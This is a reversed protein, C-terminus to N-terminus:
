RREPGILDMQATRRAFRWRGDAKVIEDKYIGVLPISIANGDTQGPIMVYTRARCREGDGQISPIGLVHRMTPGASRNEFLSGVYARIANRGEFRGATGEFVGDPMFNDVYGDLDGSDLRFAYDAILEMVALKDEASMADAM